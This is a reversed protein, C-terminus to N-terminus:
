ELKFTIPLSYLVNIKKGEHEGPIWNPFLKVLRLAEADLLPHVSNAIGFDGLTGDEFVRFEVVVRGEIGKRSCKKPYVINKCLFEYMKETGGPYEPPTDITVAGLTDSDLVIKEDEDQPESAHAPAFTILLAFALAITYFLKTM